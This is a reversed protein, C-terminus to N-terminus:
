FPLDSAGGTKAKHEAAGAKAKESHPNYIKGMPKGAKSLTLTIYVNGKETQYKPLDAIQAASLSIRWSSLKGEYFKPEDVYGILDSDYSQAKDAM